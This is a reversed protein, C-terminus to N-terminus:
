RVFNIVSYHLYLFQLKSHIRCIHISVIFKPLSPKKGAVIEKLIGALTSKLCALDIEKDSITISECDYLPDKLTPRCLTMIHKQFSDITIHSFNVLTSPIIMDEVGDVSLRIYARQCTSRSM